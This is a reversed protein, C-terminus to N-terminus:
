YLRFSTAHAGGCVAVTMMPPLLPFLTTAYDKAPRARDLLLSPSANRDGRLVTGSRASHGWERKPFETFGPYRVPNVRPRPYSPQRTTLRVRSMRSNVVNRFYPYRAARKGQGALELWSAVRTVTLRRSCTPFALPQGCPWRTTMVGDGATAGPWLRRGAGTIEGIRDDGPPQGTGPATQPEGDASRVQRRADRPDM